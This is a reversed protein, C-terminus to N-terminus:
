VSRDDRDWINVLKSLTKRVKKNSWCEEVSTKMIFIVQDTRGEITTMVKQQDTFRSQLTTMREQQDKFVETIQDLEKQVLDKERKLKRNEIM